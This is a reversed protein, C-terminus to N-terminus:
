LKLSTLDEHRGMLGTAFTNFALSIRTDESITSEVNHITASPFLVIDGTKVPYRWIMANLPTYVASTIRILNEEKRHFQIADKDKEAHLYMVGSIISNSHYHTHHTEGPETYNLWSQTIYINFENRPIIINSVYYNLAETIEKKLNSFAPCTDLVYKDNSTLNGTNDHLNEPKKYHAIVELEEKTLVRDINTTVLNTPFITEIIYNM